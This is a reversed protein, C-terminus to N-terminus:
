LKIEKDIKMLTFLNQLEHIYKLRMSDMSINPTDIEVICDNHRYDFYIYVKVVTDDEFSGTQWVYTDDSFDRDEVPVLDESIGNLDFGNYKLSDETIEIPYLERPSVFTQGCPVEEGQDNHVSFSVDVSDVRIADIKALVAMRSIDDASYTVYNGIHLEKVDVM